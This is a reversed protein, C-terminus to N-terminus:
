IELVASRVYKRSPKKGLKREIDRQETPSISSVLVVMKSM